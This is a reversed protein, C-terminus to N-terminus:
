LNYVDLYKMIDNGNWCWNRRGCFRPAGDPRTMARSCRSSVRYHWLAGANWRPMADESDMAAVRATPGSRYRTTADDCRTMAGRTKARLRTVAGGPWRESDRWRAM